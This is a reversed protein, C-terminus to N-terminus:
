EYKRFLKLLRDPMINLGLENEGCLMRLFRGRHRLPHFHLVKVPMECKDIVRKFYKTGNKSGPFNYTPNLREYRGKIEREMVVLAREEDTKLEYAKDRLKKLIDKAGPKFFFSGTNWKDMYGYDTFGIDTKLEIEMPYAQFADLDHFWYLDDQFEMDALVNMKSMQKWYDCWYEGGVVTTKIGKYEYPFNAIFIIDEPKWGLELSNEIQIKAMLEGERDFREPNIYIM